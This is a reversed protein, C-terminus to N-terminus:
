RRSNSGGNWLNRARDFLGGGGSRGESSRQERGAPYSGPLTQQDVRQDLGSSHRRLGPAGSYPRRRREQAPSEPAFIPNERTGSQRRAVVAPSENHLPEQGPRRVAGSGEKPTIGERCVACTDHEKLWAEICEPHYWHHCPLETIIDGINVDSMCITCEAKGEDGLHKKSVPIQPLAKIAAESAPGPANGSQHQEMLQSLINDFNGDSVFDGFNHGHPIGMTGGFMNNLMASLPDMGQPFNSARRQSAAGPQGMPRAGLNGLLQAMM